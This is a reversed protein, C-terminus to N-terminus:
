WKCPSAHSSFVWFDAVKLYDAQLPASPATTLCINCYWTSDYGFRAELVLQTGQILFSYMIFSALIQYQICTAGALVTDTELCALKILKVKM